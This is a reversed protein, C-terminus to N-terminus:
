RFEVSGRVRAGSGGPGPSSPAGRLGLVPALPLADLVEGVPPPLADALADVVPLATGVVGTVLSLAPAATGLLDGLTADAAASTAPVIQPLLASVPTERTLASSGRSVSARSATGTQRTPVAAGRASSGAPSAAVGPAAAPSASSEDVDATRREIRTTGDPDVELYLEGSRVNVRESPTRVEFLGVVGLVRAVRAVLSGVEVLVSVDRDGGATALVRTMRLRSREGLVLLSGDGLRLSASAGPGTVVVQGASVIADVRAAVPGAATEVHVDGSVGVLRAGADAFSARPVVVALAAVMVAIGPASRM